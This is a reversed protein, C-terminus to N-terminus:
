CEYKLFINKDGSLAIIKKFTKKDNIHFYINRKFYEKEYKLDDNFYHGPYIAIDDQVIEKIKKISEFMENYNSGKCNCFGCSRIFVTDGTFLVSGIQFCMSGATHGPTLICKIQLNGIRIIETDNVPILNDSEFGYFNIEKSSMYVRCDFKEVLPTVLNTHDYHSHTLLIAKLVVGNENICKLIKELDWAPDVVIAVKEEANIIIYTCNNVGGVEVRKVIFIEEM